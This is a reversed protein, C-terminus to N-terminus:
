LLPISKTTRYRPLKLTKTITTFQLNNDYEGGPNYTPTSGTFSSSIFTLSNSPM